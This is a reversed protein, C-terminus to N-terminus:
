VQRDPFVIPYREWLDKDDKLMELQRARMAEFAEGDKTGHSLNLFEEIWEIQDDHRKLIEQMFEMAEEHKAESDQNGKQTIMGFCDRLMEKATVEDEPTKIEVQLFPSIRSVLEPRQLCQESEFIARLKSQMQSMPILEWTFQMLLDKFTQVSDPSAQSLNAQTLIEDCYAQGPLLAKWDDSELYPGYTKHFYAEWWEDSPM